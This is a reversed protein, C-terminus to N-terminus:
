SVARLLPPAPGPELGPWAAARGIPASTSARQRGQEHAEEGQSGGGGAGRATSIGYDM